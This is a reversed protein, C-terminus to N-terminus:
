SALSEKIEQQSCLLLFLIIIHIFNIRIVTNCTHVIRNHQCGSICIYSSFCFGVIVVVVGLLYIYVM